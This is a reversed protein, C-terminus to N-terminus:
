DGGYLASKIREKGKYMANCTKFEIVNNARPIRQAASALMLGVLNEYLLRGAANDDKGGVIYLIERCFDYYLEWDM